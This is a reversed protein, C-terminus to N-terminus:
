NALVIAKSAQGAPKAGRAGARGSGVVLDNQGAPMTGEGAELVDAVLWTDPKRIQRKTGARLGGDTGSEPHERISEGSLDRSVKQVVSRRVHRERDDAGGNASRGQ